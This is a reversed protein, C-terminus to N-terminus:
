KLGGLLEGLSGSRKRVPGVNAPNTYTQPNVFPAKPAAGTHVPAVAPAAPPQLAKALGLSALDPFAGPVAPNAAATAAPGQTQGVGAVGFGAPSAAPAGVPGAAGGLGSASLATLAPTPDVDPHKQMLMDALTPTPTQLFANIDM